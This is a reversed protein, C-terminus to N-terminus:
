GFIRKFIIHVSNCVDVWICSSSVHATKKKQFYKVKLYELYDWDSGAVEHGDLTKTLAVSCSGGSAIPRARRSKYLIIVSFLLIPKNM